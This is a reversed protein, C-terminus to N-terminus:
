KTEKEQDILVESILFIPDAIKLLSEKLDAQVAPDFFGKKFSSYDAWDMNTIFRYHVPIEHPWEEIVHSLDTAIVGPVSMNKDQHDSLRWKLFEKEDSNPPLNYLITLRIM